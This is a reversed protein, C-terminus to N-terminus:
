LCWCTCFVIPQSYRYFASRQAEAIVKEHFPLYTEADNVSTVTQLISVTFFSIQSIHSKSSKGHACPQIISGHQIFGYYTGM